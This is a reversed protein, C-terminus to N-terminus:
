WLVGYVSRICFLDFKFQWEYDLFAGAELFTYSRFTLCLLVAILAM